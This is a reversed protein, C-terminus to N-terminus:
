VYKSFCLGHPWSIQDTLQVCCLFRKLNKQFNPPFALGLGKESFGFNLM